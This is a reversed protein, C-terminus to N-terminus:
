CAECLKIEQEMPLDERPAWEMMSGDYLRERENGLVAYAAFWTLSARNGSHCFHVQEGQASIGRAAFLAKLEAADRLKASGDRTVWDHPLNRSGPITGRREKDDGRYLGVFEGTTRADVFEGQEELIQNV